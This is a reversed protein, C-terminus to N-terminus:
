IEDQEFVGEQSSQKIFDQITTATVVMVSSM